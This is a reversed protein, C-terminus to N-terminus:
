IIAKGVVHAPRSWDDDNRSAFHVAAIADDCNRKVGPLKLFSLSLLRAGVKCGALATQWLIAEGFAIFDGIEVLQLAIMRAAADAPEIFRLHISDVVGECPREVDVSAADASQCERRAAILSTLVRKRRLLKRM